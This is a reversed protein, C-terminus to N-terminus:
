GNMKKTNCIIGITLYFTVKDKYYDPAAVFEFLSTSM